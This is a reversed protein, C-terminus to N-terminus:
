EKLRNRVATLLYLSGSVVTRQKSQSQAQLFSAYDVLVTKSTANSLELMKQATMARPNDFDVFYFDDSVQEFIQLIQQVDKDALIGIVFTIPESPFENKITEVLKEASAPNHAGDLIIFPM